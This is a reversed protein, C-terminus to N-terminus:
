DNYFRLYAMAQALHECCNDIDSLMNEIKSLKEKEIKTPQRDADAIADEIRAEQDELREAKENLQILLDDMTNYIKSLKIM